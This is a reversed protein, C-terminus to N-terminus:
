STGSMFARVHLGPVPRGPEVIRDARGDGRRRRCGLGGGGLDEDAGLDCALRGTRTRALDPVRDFPELGVRDLRPGRDAGHEAGRRLVCSDVDLARDPGGPHGGGADTCDGAAASADRERGGLRRRQEADM